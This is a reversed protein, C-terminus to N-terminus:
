KEGATKKAHASKVLDLWTNQVQVPGGDKGTLRTETKDSQGLENKGLWIQMTVNGEMASAYQRARLCGRGIGTGRKIAGSLKPDKPMRKRLTGEGLDLISEIDEVTSFRQALREIMDYDLPMPKPGRKKLKSKPKRKTM